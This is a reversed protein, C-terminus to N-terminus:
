LNRLIWFILIVALMSWLQLRTFHIRFPDPRNRITHATFRIFQFGALPLFLLFLANQKAAGAMDGGLLATFARQSGCAPCAYGTLSYLFCGPYPNNAAPYFYYLLSVSAAAM